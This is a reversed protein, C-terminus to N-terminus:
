AEARVVRRADSKLAIAEGNHFLVTYRQYSGYGGSRQRAKVRVDVAWCPLGEYGALTSYVQYPSSLVEVRAGRANSLRSEIYTEAGEEYNVPMPGFDRALADATMGLATFTMAISAILIKITNIM